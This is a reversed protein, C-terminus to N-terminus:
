NAARGKLRQGSTASGLSTAKGDIVEEPSERYKGSKARPGCGLEVRQVKLSFAYCAINASTANRDCGLIYCVEV